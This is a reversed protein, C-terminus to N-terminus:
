LIISVMKEVKPRLSVRLGLGNSPPAPRTLPPQEVGGGSLM